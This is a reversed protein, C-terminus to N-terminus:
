YQTFHSAVSIEAMLMFPQRGLQYWQLNERGGAVKAHISLSKPREVDCTPFNYLYHENHDNTLITLSGSMSFTKKLMYSYLNSLREYHNINQRMGGPM